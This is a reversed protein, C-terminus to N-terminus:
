ALFWLFISIELNECCVLFQNAQKYLFSNEFINRIDTCFNVMHM